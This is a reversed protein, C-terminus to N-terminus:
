VDYEFIGSSKNVNVLKDSMIPKLKVLRETGIKDQNEKSANFTNHNGIILFNGQMRDFVMDGNKFNKDEFDAYFQQNNATFVHNILDEKPILSIGTKGSNPWKNAYAPM